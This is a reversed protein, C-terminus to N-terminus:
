RPASELFADVDKRLRALMETHIYMMHGAEYYRRTINKQATPDLSLHSLTYETAFYPTALDYYGSAVFLRMYPNKAFASRLLESSDAYGQGWEENRGFVKTFDWSSFGGGLIEYTKDSKYGLESRVYNNFSSTYPPTIAALSPDFDPTAGAASADIGEFRSDLRGYSRKEARGLEKLFNGLPVRLNSNDM